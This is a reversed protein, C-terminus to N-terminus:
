LEFLIFWEEQWKTRRDLGWRKERVAYNLIEYYAKM